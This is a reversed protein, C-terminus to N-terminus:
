KGNNSTNILNLINKITKFNNKEVRAPHIEIGRDELEYLLNIFAYSDLLGSEFLDSDCDLANDTQCTKKVIEKLENESM